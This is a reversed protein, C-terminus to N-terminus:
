SLGQENFFSSYKKDTGLIHKRLWDSLFNMVKVSLAVSGSEFDRRFKEVEAVFARHEAVHQPALPYGYKRFYSEEANFHSVAYNSLERIIPQLVDKGKGERMADNLANILEILKRHQSDFLSVRVSLNDDWSIVAM